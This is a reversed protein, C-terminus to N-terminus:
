TIELRYLIAASRTRSFVTRHENQVGGLGRPLIERQCDSDHLRGDRGSLTDDDALDGVVGAIRSRLIAVCVASRPSHRILHDKNSLVRVARLGALLVPLSAAEDRRAGRPLNVLVDPVGGDRTFQDEQLTRPVEMQFPHRQGPLMVHPAPYVLAPKEPVANIATEVLHGELLM